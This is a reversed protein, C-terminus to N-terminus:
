SSRAPAMMSPPLIEQPQVNALFAPIIWGGAARYCDFWAYVPGREFHLALYVRREKEGLQVAALIEYDVYAGYKSAISELGSVARAEAGPESMPSGRLWTRIAAEFGGVKISDLGARIIEPVEPRQSQAKAAIPPMAGAYTLALIALFYRM